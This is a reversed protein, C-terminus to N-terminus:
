QKSEHITIIPLRLYKPNKKIDWQYLPQQDCIADAENWTVARGRPVGEEDYIVYFEKSNILWYRYLENLVCHYKGQAVLFEELKYLVSSMDTQLEAALPVPHQLLWEKSSYRPHKAQAMFGHDRLSFMYKHHPPIDNDPVKMANCFDEAAMFVDAVDLNLHGTNRAADDLTVDLFQWLPTMCTAFSM